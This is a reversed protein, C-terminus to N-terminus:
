AAVKDILEPMTSFTADAMAEQASKLDDRLELEASISGEYDKLLTTWYKCVDMACAASKAITATGELLSNQLADVDDSSSEGAGPMPGGIAIIARAITAVVAVEELAGQYELRIADLNALFTQMGAELQEASGRAHLSEPNRITPVIYSSVVSKAVVDMLGAADCDPHDALRPEEADFSDAVKEWGASSLAKQM